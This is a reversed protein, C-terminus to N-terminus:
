NEVEVAIRSQEIEVGDELLTWYVYEMTENDWDIGGIWEKCKESVMQRAERTDGADLDMTVPSGDDINLRVQYSPRLKAM